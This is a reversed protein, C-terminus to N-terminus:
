NIWDKKKEIKSISNLEAHMEKKAEIEEVFLANDSPSNVIILPDNYNDKPPIYKNIDDESVVSINNAILASDTVQMSDLSSYIIEMPIMNNAVGSTIVNYLVEHLDHLVRVCQNYLLQAKKNDSESM